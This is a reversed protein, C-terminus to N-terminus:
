PAQSVTLRLHQTKVESDNGYHQTVSLSKIGLIKVNGASVQAPKLWLIAGCHM